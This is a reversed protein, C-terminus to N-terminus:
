GFLTHCLSFTKWFIKTKRRWCFFMTSLFGWKWIQGPLGLQEAATVKDAILRTNRDFTFFLWIINYSYWEICIVSSSTTCHATYLLRSKPAAKKTKLSNLEEAANWLIKWIQLEICLQINAGFNQCSCFLGAHQQLLVIWLVSHRLYREAM